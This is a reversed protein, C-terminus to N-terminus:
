MQAEESLQGIPLLAFTIIELGHLVLKHIIASYALLVLSVIKYVTMSNVIYLLRCIKLVLKVYIFQNKSRIPVM